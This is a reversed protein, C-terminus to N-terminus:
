QKVGNATLYQQVAALAAAAMNLDQLATNADGASSAQRAADLTGRVQLALQNAQSAKQSSLAGQDTAQAITNLVGTVGAYAYAIRQDTTQAPALGFTSCGTLTLGLILCALLKKM